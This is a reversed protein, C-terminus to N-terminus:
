RQGGCNQVTEIRTEPKKDQNAKYHNYIAAGAVILGGLVIAGTVAIAYPMVRAMGDARDLDESAFSNELSM